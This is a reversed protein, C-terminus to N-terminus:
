TTKHSYVIINKAYWYFIFVYEQTGNNNKLPFSHLIIIATSTISFILYHVRRFVEHIQCFLPCVNNITICLLTHAGTFSIYVYTETENMVLLLGM